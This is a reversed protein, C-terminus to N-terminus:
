QLQLNEAEWKSSAVQEVNAAGDIAAPQVGDKVLRRYAAHDRSWEREMQNSSVVNPNRTPTADASFSVGLVKCGFCDEPHNSDPGHTRKM